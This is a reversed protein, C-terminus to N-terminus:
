RALNVAAQQLLVLPHRDAGPWRAPSLRAPALAAELAGRDTLLNLRTGPAKAGLFRELLQPLRGAAASARADALDDLIMSNLIMSDPPQKSSIHVYKRVAFWPARVLERELGLTAVLWAFAKDIMTQDLPKAKGAADLVRVQEDLRKALDAEAHRWDVLRAFGDALAVPVGWGFSAVSTAGDPIPRGEQDLTLVALPAYAKTRPREPRSDAFVATLAEFAAPLTVAGLVVQYYMRKKPQSKEGRRWPLDPTLDAVANRQGAVDEPKDFQAPSLVEIATWASLIDAPHNAAPPFPTPDHLPTKATPGEAKPSAGKPWAPSSTDSATMLAAAAEGVQTALKGARKSDRHALQAALIRLFDGDQRHQALVAELEIISRNMLPRRM